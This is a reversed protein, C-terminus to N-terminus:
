MRWYQFFLVFCFRIHQNFQYINYNLLNETGIIANRAKQNALFSRSHAWRPSMSYNNYLQTVITEGQIDTARLRCQINMKM